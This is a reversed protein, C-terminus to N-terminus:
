MGHGLVLRRFWCRRRDGCRGEVGVRDLLANEPDHGLLGTVRDLHEFEIEIELGVQADVGDLLGLRERFDPGGEANGLLFVHLERVVGGQSVDDAEGHLFGTRSDVCLRHRLGYPRM